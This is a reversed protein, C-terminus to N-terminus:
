RIRDTFEHNGLAPFLRLKADRWSKTEEKFVRYDDVNNGALPVDGNLLVADSHEDAIRDVLWKRVRPDTATVNSRDTFRMDGYTIVTVEPRLEKDSVRFTPGPTSLLHDTPLDAARNQASCFSAFLAGAVLCCRIARTPFM